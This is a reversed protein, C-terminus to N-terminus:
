GSGTLSAVRVDERGGARRLAVVVREMTLLNVRRRGGIPLRVSVGQGPMVFLIEPNLVLSTRRNTGGM